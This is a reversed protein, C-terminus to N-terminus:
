TSRNSRSYKGESCELSTHTETATIVAPETLTVTVTGTCGNADTVTYVVTGVSQTFIGTGTYPATGGTASITVTSTGGNCAIATHTETATIAAPETLTVSVTGTCGNADTVTYVVTGVSQM